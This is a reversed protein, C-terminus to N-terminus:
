KKKLLKRYKHEIIIVYILSPLASLVIVLFMMGYGIEIKGFVYSLVLWTIALIFQSIAIERSYNKTWEHCKFKETINMKWFLGLIGYGLYFVGMMFLVEM